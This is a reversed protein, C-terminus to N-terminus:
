LNSYVEPPKTLRPIKINPPPKWVQTSFISMTIAHTDTGCAHTCARARTHEHAQFTFTSHEDVYAFMKMCILVTYLRQAKALTDTYKYEHEHLQSHTQDTNIHM